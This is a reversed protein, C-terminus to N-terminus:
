PPEATDDFAPLVEAFLVKTLLVATAFAECFGTGADFRV